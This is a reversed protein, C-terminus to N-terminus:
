EIVYLPSCPAENATFGVHHSHVRGFSNDVNNCEQITALTCSALTEPPSLIGGRM